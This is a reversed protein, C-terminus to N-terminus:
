HYNSLHKSLFSDEIPIQSAVLVIFLQYNLIFLEVNKMRCEVNKMRWEGNKM